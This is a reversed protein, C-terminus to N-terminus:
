ECMAYQLGAPLDYASYELHVVRRHKPTIAPSSTHPTLPAMALVDGKKATITEPTSSSILNALEQQNLRGSKYHGSLVSLPGNDHGCNDLHLRLTIMKQLVNVPPEVHQRGSKKTWNVYGDIDIRSQVAITRDQHWPVGWNAKKTKDFVIIRVLRTPMNLLKDALVQLVTQKAFYAQTDTPLEFDRAGYISAKRSARAHDSFALKDINMLADTGLAQPILMWGNKVFTHRM